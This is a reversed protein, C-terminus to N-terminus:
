APLSTTSPGASSSTRRRSWHSARTPTALRPLPAQLPMVRMSCRFCHSRSWICRARRPSVSRIKFNQTNDPSTKWFRAADKVPKDAVAALVMFKHPADKKVAAMDKIVDLLLTATASDKPGLSGTKNKIRYHKPATTLIKYMVTKGSLNTLKLAKQQPSTYPGKFVIDGEPDMKLLPPDVQIMM